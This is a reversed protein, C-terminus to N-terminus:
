SRPVKWYSMMQPRIRAKIKKVGRPQKRLFAVAGFRPPVGETLAICWGDM